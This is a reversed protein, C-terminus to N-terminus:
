IGMSWVAFHQHVHDSFDVKTVLWEADRCVVRMGPTLAAGEPM